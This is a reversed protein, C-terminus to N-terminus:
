KALKRVLLKDDILLRLIYMGAPADALQIPLASPGAPMDTAPLQWLLRGDTTYLAAKVTAQAPLDIQALWAGNPSPNPSVTVDATFVESSIDTVQWPGALFPHRQEAGFAGGAFLWDGDQDRLRYFGSGYTCCMGDGFADLIRFTYCGELPLDVPVVILQNNYYTGPDAPSANNYGGGSAGVVENGGSAFVAGAEDIIEWYIEYGYFDTKIELTLSTGTSAPANEFVFTRNNNGIDEDQQGNPSYVSCLLTNPDSFNSNFNILPLAVDAREYTSLYGSWAYLQPAGGNISYQITASTLPANGDNRLTLIPSLSEVCVEEPATISLANVNHTHAVTFEPTVSIGTLIHQHGEAIFIALHMNAPVVPVGRFHPPMQYTYTRAEFYGASTTYIPEGWQGTLLDRLIDHHRYTSYPYAGTQPGIIDNQLLAINLYNIPAISNGTYYLEIQITLLGSVVNYHANAAINVPSPQQLVNAVANAWNSRNIATTGPQNQEWGPFVQRNVTGAPYGVLGTQNKLAEGYDSRLDPDGPDPVAYSGAHVNILVVEDPNSEVIQGAINNGEPCYICYIGGFVELVANKNQPTTSVFTQGSLWGIAAFCFWFTFVLKNEVM